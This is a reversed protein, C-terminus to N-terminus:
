EGEGHYEDVADVVDAIKEEDIYFRIKDDLEFWVSEPFRSLIFQQEDHTFAVVEIVRRLKM